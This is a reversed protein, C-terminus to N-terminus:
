TRLRNCDTVIATAMADDRLYRQAMELLQQADITRLTHVQDNFYEPYIGITITSAVYGGVNFPTDLTKVLDGLMNQRVLNLEEDPVPESRLRQLELRIEDMVAWTSDIKCETSIGVYGDHERGSLYAQIGYTYGKQERINVSLRSGIYGGLVNALIRLPIYHPHRRPVAPMAIAIASQLADPHHVVHQAAQFPRAIANWDFPPTAQGPMALSELAQTVRALVEPTIQGALVACLNATRYHSQHFTRLDDPTLAMVDDPMIDRALPHHDGYYMRALEMMALFRVQQHVAAFNAAYRRQLVQMDAALFTPHQLCDCLVDLSPQVNDNLSLVAIETWEDYAQVTIRSGYYDLTEAIQQSTRSHTGETATFATIAAQMPRAEHLEGGRIFVSLRNMGDQGGDVVYLPIGNSLIRAPPMNLRVEGYPRVPPQITLDNM